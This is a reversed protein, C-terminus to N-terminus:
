NAIFCVYSSIRRIFVNDFSSSFISFVTLSHMKFRVKSLNLLFHLFIFCCVNFTQEFDVFIIFM